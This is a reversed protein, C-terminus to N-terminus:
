GNRGEVIVSFVAAFAWLAGLFLLLSGWVEAATPGRGLSVMLSAPVLIVGAAPGIAALILGATIM